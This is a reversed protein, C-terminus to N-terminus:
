RQFGSKTTENIKWSAGFFGTDINVLYYFNKGREGVASISDTGMGLGNISGYDVKISFNQPEIEYELYEGNGLLGAESGNVTIKALVAAAMFSSPRYFFIKTKNKNNDISLDSINKTGTGACATVFLILFVQAFKLM